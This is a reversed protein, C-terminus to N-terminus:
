LDRDDVKLQISLDLLQNVQEDNLPGMASFKKGYFYLQENLLILACREAPLTLQISVEGRSLLSFKLDCNM